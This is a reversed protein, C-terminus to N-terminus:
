SHSSFILTGSQCADPVWHPIPSSEYPYLTGYRQATVPLFDNESFPRAWVPMPQCCLKLALDMHDHDVGLTHAVEHEWVCALYEVRFERYDKPIWMTIRRGERAANGLGAKGHHHRGRKSRSYRVSIIKNLNAGAHVLGATFLKRLATTSYATRNELKM